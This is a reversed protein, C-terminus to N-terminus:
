IKKHIRMLLGIVYYWRNLVDLDEASFSLRSIELEPYYKEQFDYYKMTTEFYNDM